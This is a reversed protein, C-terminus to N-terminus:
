KNRIKQGVQGWRCEVAEPLTSSTTRSPQKGAGLNALNIILKIPPSLDNALHQWGERGMAPPHSPHRTYNPPFSSLRSSDFQVRNSNEGPKDTENIPNTPHSQHSSKEHSLPFQLLKVLNYASQTLTAPPSTSSDARHVSLIFPRSVAKLNKREKTANARRFRLRPSMKSCITVKKEGSLFFLGMRMCLCVRARYFIYVWRLKEKNLWPRYDNALEASTYMTVSVLFLGTLTSEFNCTQLPVFCPSMRPSINSDFWISSTYSLPTTCEIFRCRTVWILSPFCDMSTSFLM